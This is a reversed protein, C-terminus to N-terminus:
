RLAAEFAAELQADRGAALDAPTVAVQVDPTVGTDPARKADRMAGSPFTGILPVDVELGTRPLRAFFFAGGNIGRQSGGTPTGVLTALANKQVTLAFQFTASSNAADVLVVVKGLYRPAVPAIFDGSAGDDERPLERWGEGIPTAAQGLTFFSPDWTDLMPRLEEPVTEFRVRRVTTRSTIRADILHAIIEDGVDNGGENGRLDIILAPVQKTALDRMTDHLFGKWGWTPKYAVWSPMKLYGVQKTGRTRLELSWLPEAPDRKTSSARVLEAREAAPQLAVVVKKTSSSGPARITLEVQTQDRVVSPYVLSFLIDFTELESDGSDELLARRKDQNEGDARALPMLTALVEHAELDAIREVVTGPTLGAGSGLDRTVVMKEDLWRFFFPLRPAEFLAQRVAKKQNFFNPYSHGCKLGATLRTLEVFAESLGRDRAFEAKAHAFLADLQAPSNSRTLGPHLARYVKELSDVDALLDASALSPGTPM